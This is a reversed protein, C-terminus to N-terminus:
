VFRNNSGPLPAQVMGAGVDTSPLDLASANNILADWLFQGRLSSDSEAWLAAIGAVHPCAMSTGRLSEYLKPYSFSSFVSVGPAAIDIGGGNPNVGGCSFEAVRDNADVAAVAFISPSNAPACVPAIYGFDRSSENGAAAIIISGQDLALKGLREYALSPKEGVQTARGLSMSIVHCGENIAWEMGALIDIETGSGRSNLVKGIYIEAENAVGYRPINANRSPGAATGTCHTGHGQVDDADEGSVFSKHVIPRSSFDPHKLYFGTDLIAIKIGKGTFNSEEAKTRTIGWTSESSDHAQITPPMSYMFFEPRSELVGDTARINQAIAAMGNDKPVSIVGIGLGKMLIPEKLDMTDLDSIDGASLSRAQSGDLFTRSADSMIKLQDHEPIDGFVVIINGTPRPSKLRQFPPTDSETLKAEM